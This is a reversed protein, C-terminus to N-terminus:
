PALAAAMSPMRFVHASPELAVKLAGCPAAM